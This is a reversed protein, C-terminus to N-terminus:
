TQTERTNPADESHPLWVRRWARDKVREPIEELARLMRRGAETIEHYGGAQEVRHVWGRRVVDQAITRTWDLDHPPIEANLEELTRPHEAVLLVISRSRKTGVHFELAEQQDRNLLFGTREARRLKTPQLVFVSNKEIFEYLERRYHKAEDITFGKGQSRRSDHEDHHDFCLFALNEPRNNSSDRDLHAIQGRKFLRDSFLGFCLCCRRRSRILVEAEVPEPTARRAM